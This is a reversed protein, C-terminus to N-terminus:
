PVGGWMHIQDYAIETYFRFDRLIEKRFAKVTKRLGRDWGRETSCLVCTVMRSTKVTIRTRTIKIASARIKRDGFLCVITPHQRLSNKIASVLQCAAAWRELRQRNLATKKDIM